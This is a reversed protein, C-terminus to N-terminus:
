KISNILKYAQKLKKHADKPSQFVGYDVGINILENIYFGIDDLLNEYYKTNKDEKIPKTEDEKISQGHKDFIKNGDKDFQGPLGKFKFKDKKRSRELPNNLVSPYVIGLYFESLLEKLKPLKKNAMKNEGISEKIAFITKKPVKYNEYGRRQTLKGDRFTFYAPGVKDDYFIDLKLKVLKKGKKSIEMSSKWQDKVSQKTQKTPGSKFELKDM